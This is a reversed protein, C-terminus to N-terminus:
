IKKDSEFYLKEWTPCLETDIKSFTVCSDLEDWTFREKKIVSDYKELFSEICDHISDRICKFSISYEPNETERVIRATPIFHPNKVNIIMHYKIM